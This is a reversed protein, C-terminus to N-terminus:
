IYFSHFVVTAPLTCVLYMQAVVQVNPHFLHTSVFIDDSIVRQVTTSLRTVVFKVFFLKIGSGSKGTFRATKRILIVIKQVVSAIVKELTILAKM